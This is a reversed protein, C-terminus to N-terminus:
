LSPLGQRAESSVVANTNASNPPSVPVERWGCRDYFLSPTALKVHISQIPQLAAIPIKIRFQDEVVRVTANRIMEQSVANSVKM